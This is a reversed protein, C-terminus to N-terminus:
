HYLTNSILLGSILFFLHLRLFRGPFPVLGLPNFLVSLVAVARLGDIYPRWGGGSRPSTWLWRNLIAPLGIPKDMPVANPEPRIAQRDIPMPLPWVKQM